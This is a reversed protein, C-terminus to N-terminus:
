CKCYNTVPTKLEIRNGQEDMIVKTIELEVLPSNPDDANGGLVFDMGSINSPDIGGSTWPNGSFGTAGIVAPCENDSDWYNFSASFAVDVTVTLPKGEADYLQGLEPDILKYTLPKVITVTYEVINNLRAQRVEKTYQNSEWFNTYGQYQGTNVREYQTGRLDAVLFSGEIRVQDNSTGNAVNGSYGTIYFADDIEEGNDARTATITARKMDDATIRLQEIDVMQAESLEIKMNDSVVLIPDGADGESSGYYKGYALPISVNASGAISIDIHNVTHNAWDVGKVETPSAFLIEAANSSDQQGALRLSGDPNVVVGLYNSGHHVNYTEGGATGNNDVSVSTNNEVNSRDTVHHEWYTIGNATHQTGADIEVHGEGAKNTEELYGTSSSPDLYRRYWDSAIQLGDFGVETSNFYIHGNPNNKNITWLMPDDVKVTKTAEDYEVETLTCDNNVIYYKGEYKVLTMYQGNDQMVPQNGFTLTLKGNDTPGQWGAFANGNNGNHEDLYYTTGNSQTSLRYTSGDQTVTFTQPNGSLSANARQQNDYNKTLNMYQKSGDGSLTYIYYSNGSSGAPREFYWTAAQSASSTKGFGNTDNNNEIPTITTTVYRSDHSITFSKGDLDTVAPTAQSSPVTIVGYVSFSDTDFAMEVSGDQDTVFNEAEMIVPGDEDFHIVNWTGDTDPTDALKIDVKVAAEPEIEEKGNIISIDFFRARNEGTIEAAQQYYDGYLEDQPLIEEVRLKSGDPIGAEEGYTVLIEWTEGKADIVTEQELRTAPTDIGGQDEATNEDLTLAPLILLYTTVFVVMACLALFLSRQKKIFTYIGSITKM